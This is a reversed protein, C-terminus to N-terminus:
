LIEFDRPYYYIKDCDKIKYFCCNWMNGDIDECLIQIYNPYGDKGIAGNELVFTYNPKLRDVNETTQNFSVIFNQFHKLEESIYQEYLQFYSLPQQGIKEISLNFLETANPMKSLKVILKPKLKRQREKQEKKKEARYTCFSIFIGLATGYFALLDGPEVAVIQPLPLAYIFGVILPFLIIFVLFWIINRYVKYFKRYKLINNELKKKM